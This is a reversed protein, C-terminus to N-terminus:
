RLIDEGAPSIKDPSVKSIFAKIRRRGAADVHIFEIGMGEGPDVRRVMGQVLIADADGLRLSLEVPQGRQLPRPDKLYLGTLSLDRVQPSPAVYEVRIVGDAVRSDLRRERDRDTM